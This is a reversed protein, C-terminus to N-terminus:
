KGLKKRLQKRLARILIDWSVDLLETNLPIILPIVPKKRSGRRNVTAAARSKPPM